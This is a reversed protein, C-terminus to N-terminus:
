LVENNLCKGVSVIQPFTALANGDTTLVRLQIQVNHSCSLKFTDEQTLTCRLENGELHCDPVEKRFVEVDNQAYIVMAKEVLSSDFPLVFTHTPTTGRIM